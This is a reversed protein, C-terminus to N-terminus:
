TSSKVEYIEVRKKGHNKVIDVICFNGDISFSAEAIIPTDEGLLRDTDRIMEKLNGYSVEVFPGFLGMALDGVAPGTNLVTQNMVGDDFEEPKYKKLWLMRPCQYASCFRSKSLSLAMRHGREKSSYSSGYMKM